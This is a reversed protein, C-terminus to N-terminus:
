LVIPIKGANIIENLAVNPNNYKINSNSTEWDLGELFFDFRYNRDRKFLNELYFLVKFYNEGLNEKRFTVLFDIDSGRKQTGKLYSGFLGIKKVGKAKLKDKRKKIEMIIQKKNVM